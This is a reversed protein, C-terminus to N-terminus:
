WTRTREVFSAHTEDEKQQWSRTWQWEASRPRSDPCKRCHLNSLCKYADDLRLSSAAYGRKTCHVYKSGATPLGLMQGPIGYAGLSVFLHECNRLVREPNLDELGVRVIMAIEDRPDNLNIGLSEAMQIYIQREQAIDFDQVALEKNQRAIDRALDDLRGLATNTVDPDGIGNVRERAWALANNLGIEDQTNWLSVCNLAILVADERQGLNVAVKIAIDSVDLLAKKYSDAAQAEGENWLRHCFPLMGLHLRVVAEALINYADIRPILNILAACQTYKRVLRQSIIRRASALYMFTFGDIGSVDLNAHHMHWNLFLAFDQSSLAHLQATKSIIMALLKLHAPGRKSVRGLEKAINSEITVRENPLTANAMASAILLKEKCLIAAFRLEVPSESQSLIKRIEADASAYDGKTCLRDIRQISLATIKARYSELAADLDPIHSLMGHFDVMSAQTVCKSALFLEVDAIKRVLQPVSNPLHNKTPMHVVLSKQNTAEPRDLRDRLDTDMQPAHWWTQKSNTDALILVVPLRLEDCLYRVNPVELQLSVIEGSGSVSASQTGKIQVKFITGTSDAVDQDNASKFVEVEGDIGYDHSQARIVWQRPLCQKFQQCALDDIQHQIPRKM